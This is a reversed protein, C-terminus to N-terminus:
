IPVRHTSLIRWMMGTWNWYACNTRLQYKTTYVIVSTKTTNPLFQKAM